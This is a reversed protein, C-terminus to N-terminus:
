NVNTEAVFEVLEVTIRDFGLHSLCSLRHHGDVVVARIAGNRRILLAVSPFFGHVLPRYGGKIADYNQITYIWEYELTSRENPKYWLSRRHGWQDRTRKNEMHDYHWGFPKGGELSDAKTLGGWPYTGLYFNFANQSSGKQPQHIFLIDNLYRVTNIREDQFFRFFSSSELAIEPNKDYEAILSRYYNWGEPSLSFAFEDTIVSMPLTILKGSLALRSYTITRSVLGRYAQALALLTQYLVGKQMKM